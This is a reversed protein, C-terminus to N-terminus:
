QCLKDRKADLLRLRETLEESSAKALDDGERNPGDTIQSLDAKNLLTKTLDKFPLSEKAMELLAMVPSVQGSMMREMMEEYFQEKDQGKQYLEVEMFHKRLEMKAKLHSEFKFKFKRKLVIGPDDEDKSTKMVDETMEVASLACRLEEPWLKINTIPRGDEDYMQDIFDTYNAVKGLGAIVQNGTIKLNIFDVAKMENLAAAVEPRKMVDYVGESRKFGAETWSKEKQSYGNKRYILLFKEYKPSLEPLPFFSKPKDPQYVTNQSSKEAKRGSRELQEPKIEIVESLYHSKHRSANMPTLKLGYDQNVKRIISAMSDKLEGSEIDLIAQNITDFVEQHKKELLCIKCKEKAKM